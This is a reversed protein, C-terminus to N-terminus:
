GYTLNRITINVPQFYTWGGFDKYNQDIFNYFDVINTLGIIEHSILDVFLKDVSEFKYNEFVGGSKAKEEFSM